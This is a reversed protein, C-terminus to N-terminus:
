VLSINAQRSGARTKPREVMKQAKSILLRVARPAMKVIDEYFCQDFDPISPAYIIGQITLEYEYRLM